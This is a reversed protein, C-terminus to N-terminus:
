EGIGKNLSLFLFPFFGGKYSTVWSNVVLFCFGIMSWEKGKWKEVRICSFVCPIWIERLLLSVLGSKM